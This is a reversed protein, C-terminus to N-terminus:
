AVIICAAELLAITHAHQKVKGAAGKAEKLITHLV